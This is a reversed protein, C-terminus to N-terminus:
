YLLTVPFDRTGGSNTKWFGHWHGWWWSASGEGLQTERSQQVELQACRGRHFRVRTELELVLSVIRLKVALVM